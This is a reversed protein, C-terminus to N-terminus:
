KNSTNSNTSHGFLINFLIMIGFMQWFGVKCLIPIAAVLCGNWLLMAIAALGCYCGFVVGLLIIFIIIAALCGGVENGKKVSDMITNFMDIRRKNYIIM